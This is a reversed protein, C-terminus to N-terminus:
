VWWGWWVSLLPAFSAPEAVAINRDPALVLSTFNDGAQGMFTHLVQGTITYDVISSGMAVYIGSVDVTLRTITDPVEFGAITAMLAPDFIAISHLGNAPFSNNAAHVNGGYNALADYSVGNAGTISSLSAGSAGYRTVLALSAVYTGASDATLDTITGPVGFSTIAAALASDFGAISHLGHSPFNNGAYVLGGFASLADYSVGNAGAISALPTGGAGYKAVTAGTAVCIGTIDEALGTIPQGM